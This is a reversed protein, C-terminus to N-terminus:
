CLWRKRLQGAAHERRRGAHTLQVALTAVSGCVHGWVLCRHRNHSHDDMVSVGFTRKKNLTPQMCIVPCCLSAAPRRHALPAENCCVEIANMLREDFFRNPFFPVRMRRGAVMRAKVNTPNMPMPATDRPEPDALAASGGFGAAPAGAFGALEAFTVAAGGAEAAAAAEAAGAVLLV